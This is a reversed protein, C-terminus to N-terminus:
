AFSVWSADLLWLMLWCGALGIALAGLLRMAVATLARHRVARALLATAAAGAAAAGVYTAPLPGSGYADLFIASASVAIWAITLGLAFAQTALLVIRSTSSRAATM